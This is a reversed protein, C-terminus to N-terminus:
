ESNSSLFANISKAVRPLDETLIDWIIAYDVIDYDHSIVDRVQALNRLELHPQQENLDNGHTARKAAEGAWIVTMAAARQLLEDSFFREDGLAVIREAVTAQELVSSLAEIVSFGLDKSLQASHRTM